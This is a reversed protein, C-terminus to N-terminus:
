QPIKRLLITRPHNLHRTHSVMGNASFAELAFAADRQFREDPLSAMVQFLEAIDPRMCVAHIAELLIHFIGTPIPHFTPKPPPLSSLRVTALWGRLPPHANWNSTMSQYMQLFGYCGQLCSRFIGYRWHMIRQLTVAVTLIYM